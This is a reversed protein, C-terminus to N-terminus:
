GGILVRLSMMQQLLASVTASMGVAPAGVIPPSHIHSDYMAMMMTLIQMLPEFMVAHYIAMNISPGATGGLAVSSPLLTNLSVTARAAPLAMPDPNQGLTIDGNNVAVTFGAMAAPSAGSLPNGMELFYSGNLVQQNVAINAPSATLPSGGTVQVQQNGGVSVTQNNNVMVNENHGIIRQDTEAVSTSRTSSYDELVAGEIFEKFTGAIRTVLNSAYEQHSVTKGGDLIDLGDTALLTVRGDPTINFKAATAGDPTGIEMNFYDGTDGIDLKFTWQEEDGGSENIQDAAGRFQLGCRGNSNYVNLTGFGTFMEYNECTGRITDSDGFTEMKAKADPGSSMVSYGGRLAGVMNGDQSVLVQDGPIIDKPKGPTRYFATKPDTSADPPTVVTKDGAINPSAGVDSEVVARSVNVPLAGDIYPFGLGWEIIVSTGVGLPAVSGPNDSKKPIGKLLKGGPQNPNGPCGRTIVDYSDTESDYVMVEALEKGRNTDQNSLAVEGRALGKTSQSSGLHKVRPAM